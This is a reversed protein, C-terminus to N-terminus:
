KLDGIRPRAELMAKYEPYNDIDEPYQMAPPKINCPEVKTIVDPHNANIIWDDNNLRQSLKNLSDMEITSATRPNLEVSLSKAFQVAVEDAVAMRDLSPYMSLFGEHYLEALTTLQPTCITRFPLEKFCDTMLSITNDFMFQTAVELVGNRSSQPVAFHVIRKPVEKKDNLNLCIAISTDNKVTIDFKIMAKIINSRIFDCISPIVTDPPYVFYLMLDKISIVLDVTSYGGDYFWRFKKMGDPIKDIYTFNDYPLIGGSVITTESPVACILTPNTIDWIRNIESCAAIQEPTFEGLDIYDLQM